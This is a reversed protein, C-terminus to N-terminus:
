PAQVDEYVTGEVDDSRLVLVPDPPRRVDPDLGKEVESSRDRDPGLRCDDPDETRPGSRRFGDSLRGRLPRPGPCSVEEFFLPSSSRAAVPVHGSLFNPRGDADSVGVGVVVSPVAM